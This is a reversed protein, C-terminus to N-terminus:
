FGDLPHAVDERRFGLVISAVPAYYIEGLPSWNLSRATVLEIEPAKHAPGAFLVATHRHQQEGSGTRTTVTWGDGGQRLSRVPSHLRVAEALQTQLTDTLVQLGDDFSIKKANQKSAEGRKKRES